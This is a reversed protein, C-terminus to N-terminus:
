LNKALSKNGNKLNFGCITMIKLSKKMISRFINKRRKM